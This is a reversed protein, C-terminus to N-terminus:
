TVNPGILAKLNYTNLDNRFLGFIVQLLNFVAWIIAIEKLIYWPYGFIGIRTEKIYNGNVLDRWDLRRLTIEKGNIFLKNFYDNYEARLQRFQAQVQAQQALDAFIVAQAVDFNEILQNFKMNDISKTWDHQSYIGLQQATYDAHTFRTVVEDPM